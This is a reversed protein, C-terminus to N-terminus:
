LQPKIMKLNKLFEIKSRKTVITNTGAPRPNSTETENKKHTWENRQIIAAQGLRDGQDARQSDTQALGPATFISKLRSIRGTSEPFQKWHWPGSAALRLAPRRRSCAFARSLRRPRALKSGASKALLLQQHPDRGCIERFASAEVLPLYGVSGPAPLSNLSHTM